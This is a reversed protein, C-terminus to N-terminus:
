YQCDVKLLPYSLPSAPLTLDPCASDLLLSPAGELRRCIKGNKEFQLSVPWPSCEGLPHFFKVLLGMSQLGAKMLWPRGLDTGPQYSLLSYVVLRM